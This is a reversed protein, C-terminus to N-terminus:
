RPEFPRLYNGRHGTKAQVTVSRRHLSAQVYDKGKFYIWRGYIWPWTVLNVVKQNEGDRNIHRRLIQLNIIIIIIIILVTNVISDDYCLWQLIQHVHFLTFCSVVRSGPSGVHAAHGGTYVALTLVWQWRKNSTQLHSWQAVTQEASNSVDCWTILRRCIIIKGM